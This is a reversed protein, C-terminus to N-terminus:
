AIHWMRKLKLQDGDRVIMWLKGNDDAWVHKLGVQEPSVDLSWDLEDEDGHLIQARKAQHEAKIRELPTRRGDNDSRQDM